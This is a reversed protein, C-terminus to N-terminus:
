NKRSNFCGNITTSTECQGVIGGVSNNGQINAINSCNTITSNIAKGCIGGCGVGSGQPTVRSENKCNQITANIAEGIIGGCSESKTWVGQSIVNKITGGKVRTFIGGSRKELLM